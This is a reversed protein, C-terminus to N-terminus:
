RSCMGPNPRREHSDCQGAYPLLDILSLHQNRPLCRKIHKNDRLRVSGLDLASASRNSCPSPERSSSVFAGDIGDHLRM